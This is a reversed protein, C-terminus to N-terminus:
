RKHTQMRSTSFSPKAAISRHRLIESAEGRSGRTQKFIGTPTSPRVAKWGTAPRCTNLRAFSRTCWTSTSISRRARDIADERMGRGLQRDCWLLPVEAGAVGGKCFVVTGRIPVEFSPHGQVFRRTENERFFATVGTGSQDIQWVKVVGRAGKERHPDGRAGRPHRRPSSYFLSTGTM